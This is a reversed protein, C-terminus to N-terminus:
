TKPAAIFVEDIMHMNNTSRYRFYHLWQFVLPLFYTTLSLCFLGMKGFFLFDDMKGQVWNVLPLISQSIERFSGLLYM